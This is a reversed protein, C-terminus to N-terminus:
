VVAVARLVVESVAVKILKQHKQVRRNMKCENMQM